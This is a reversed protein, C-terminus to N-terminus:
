GSVPSSAPTLPLSSLVHRWADDGDTDRKGNGPNDREREAGRNRSRGFSAKCLVGFGAHVDTRRAPHWQERRLVLEHRRSAPRAKPRGQGPRDFRSDITRQALSARLNEAMLATCMETVDELVAVSHTIRRRISPHAVANKRLAELELRFSADRFPRVSRTARFPRIPIGIRNTRGIQWIRTGRGSSASVSPLPLQLCRRHAQTGDEDRLWPGIRLM